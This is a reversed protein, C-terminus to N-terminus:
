DARESGPLAYFEGSRILRKAKEMRWIIPRINNPEHEGWRKNIAFLIEPSTAGPLGAAMRERIVETIMEPMTPKSIEAPDIAGIPLIQQSGAAELRRFVKAAIELEVREDDLAKIKAEYDKTLADIEDNIASRRNAIVQLPDTQSMVDNILDPASPTM